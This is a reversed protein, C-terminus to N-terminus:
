PGCGDFHLDTLGVSLPRSDDSLGLEQMSQPNEASIDITVPDNGIDDSPIALPWEFNRDQLDGEFVQLPGPGLKLGVSGTTRRENLFWQGRLRFRCPGTSGAPVRFELSSQRGVMWVGWNEVSGWGSALLDVGRGGSSFDVHEGAALTNPYSLSSTESGLYWLRQPHGPERHVMVAGPHHISFEPVASIVWDGCAHRTPVEVEERLQYNYVFFRTNWHVWPAEFSNSSIDSTLQQTICTGTPVNEQIYEAIRRQSSRGDSSPELFGTGVSLSQIAFCALVLLIGWRRRWGLLFVIAAAISAKFLISSDFGDFPEMLWYLGMINHLNAQHFGIVHLKALLLVLFIVSTMFAAIAIRVNSRNAELLGIALFIPLVAENFRGYIVHDVGVEQSLWLASMALNAALVILAFIDFARTPVPRGQAARRTMAWVGIAFLGLTAAILYSLQGAGSVFVRGVALLLEEYSSFGFFRSSMEHDYGFDEPRYVSVASLSELTLREQIMRSLWRGGGVCGAVIAVWAGLAGFRGRFVLVFSVFAASLIATPFGRLHVFAIAGTLAGSAVLPLCTREGSIALRFNSLFLGAIVTALLTEPQASTTYAFSAPYFSVAIAVMIPLLRDENKGQWLILFRYVLWSTLTALVANAVLVFRFITEPENFIVFLPAILVPFGIGYKSPAHTSYGALAAAKLLHGAEDPQILPASVFFIYGLHLLGLGGFAFIEMHEQPLPGCMKRIREHMKMGPAELMVAVDWTKTLKDSRKFRNAMGKQQEQLAVEPSHSRCNRLRVYDGGSRKTKIANLSKNEVAFVRGPMRARNNM